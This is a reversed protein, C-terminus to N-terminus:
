GARVPGRRACSAFRSLGAAHSCRCRRDEMAKAEIPPMRSEVNGPINGVAGITTRNGCATAGLKQVTAVLWPSAHFRPLRLNGEGLKERKSARTAALVPATKDPHSVTGTSKCTAASATSAFTVQQDNEVM